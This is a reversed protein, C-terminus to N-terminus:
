ATKTRRTTFSKWPHFFYQHGDFFSISAFFVNIQQVHMGMEEAGSFSEASKCGSGHLRQLTCQFIKSIIKISMNVFLFAGPPLSHRYDINIIFREIDALILVQEFSTKGKSKVQWIETPM